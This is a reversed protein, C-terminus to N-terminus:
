DETLLHQSCHEDTLGASTSRTWRQHNRSGQGAGSGRNKGGSDDLYRSDLLIIHECVCSQVNRGKQEHLAFGVHLRKRVFEMVRQQRHLKFSKKGWVQKHLTGDM